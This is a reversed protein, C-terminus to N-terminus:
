RSNETPVIGNVCLSRAGHRWLVIHCVQHPFEATAVGPGCAPQDLAEVRFQLTEEGATCSSWRRPRFARWASGCPVRTHLACCGCSIRPWASSRGASRKPPARLRRSSNGSGAFNWTSNTSWCPPRGPTARDRARWTQTQSASRGRFIGTSSNARAAHVTKPRRSRRVPGAPSYRTQRNRDILSKRDERPGVLPRAIQHKHLRTCPGNLSAIPCGAIAALSAPGRARM